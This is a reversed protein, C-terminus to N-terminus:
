DLIGELKLLFEKIYIKDGAYGVLNGSKGIVRHCPIIIPLENDKNAQGVARIAKPNGIKEAIESYSRTEGYPIEMLTKWVSKRFETGEISLPLKFDKREKKFYEDLQIITERCIEKNLKINPNDKLYEEWEDEFLFIKKVGIEDLVIYILGIPSFYTDYFMKMFSYLVM